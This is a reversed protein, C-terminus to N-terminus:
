TVPAYHRSAARTASGACVKPTTSANRRAADKADTSTRQGAILAISPPTARAVCRSSTPFITTRPLIEVGKETQTTSWLSNRRGASPAVTVTEKSCPTESALLTENRVLSRAKCLLGSSIENGGLRRPLPSGRPTERVTRPRIASRACAGPWSLSHGIARCVYARDTSACPPAKEMNMDSM